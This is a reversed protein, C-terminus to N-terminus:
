FPYNVGSFVEVGNPGYGIDVYGVVFPLAIARFGLGGVPHLESVPNQTVYQFVQGADVFPALELIGHTDFLDREYVRMRFELNAAFLDNDIYRGAGFGRWTARDSLPLVMLSSEGSGDGGLWGMIWFPVNTTAPIYRAYLNGAITLWRTVQQYRRLDFGFETYSFSSMLSRDAGGAFVSFLGGQTPIDISDRTDYVLFMRGSTVTGGQLGNLTPFLTGTYPLKNLVGRQIRVVRPELSLMLQLRRTINLGFIADGYGEEDAYNTQNYFRSNNGLGFFRYTPDRWFRFHGEFSWWQQHTLGTGYDFEVLGQAQEAGAGLVFWQTDNSPYSLYRLTGGPGVITNYNLDPAFISTIQHQADTQLFVPLIGITTGSVPDTAAEPVPIFPWTTPSSWSQWNFLQQWNVLDALGRGSSCLLM